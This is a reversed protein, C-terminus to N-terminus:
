KSMNYHLSLIKSVGGALNNVKGTGRIRAVSFVKFEPDAEKKQYL